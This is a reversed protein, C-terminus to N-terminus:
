AVDVIGKEVLYENIQDKTMWGRPDSENVMDWMEFTSIGDGYLKLNATPGGVVSVRCKGAADLLQWHSGAVGMVAALQHRRQQFSGPFVAIM